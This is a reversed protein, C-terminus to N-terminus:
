SMDRRHIRAPELSTLTLMCAFRLRPYGPPSSLSANSRHLTSNPLLTSIRILVEPKM